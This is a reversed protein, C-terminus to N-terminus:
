ATAAVVRDKGGRKAEYLARDATAVLSEITGCTPFESAGFSATVHLEEGSATTVSCQAVAIRVHEAVTRANDLATGPLLLAFEEGGLRATLDLERTVAGLAQSIARLVDDGTQHGHVDNVQKFDDVDVLVLALHTRLRAAREIEEELREDFTRRNALGTLADSGAERSLEGFRRALPRGLRTALGGALALTILAAVLLTRRYAAGQADVAAMPEVALVSTHAVGLSASRAVFQTSGLTIRGNRITARNGIPGGALIRGGRTLMLAAHPPLPTSAAVLTLLTSDLPVGVAVHALAHGNESITASSSLRPEKPLAGIVTSRAHIQAHRDRAIRALAARDGEVLARQLALSAALQGAEARLNARIAVVASAAVRAGGALETEAQQMDSREGSRMLTVALTGVLLMILVFVLLAARVVGSRRRGRLRRSPAPISAILSVDNM